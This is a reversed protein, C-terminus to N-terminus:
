AGTQRRGPSTEKHLALRTWTPLSDWGDATGLRAVFWSFNPHSCIERSFPQSNARQHDGVSRSGVNEM